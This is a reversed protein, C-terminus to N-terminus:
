RQRTKEGEVRERLRCMLARVLRGVEESQQEIAQTRGPKLYGLNVAVTLLTELEVLSGHAISLHHLFEGIGTRGHGEAINAPVSVAARRIQLRLGFEENRPFGDSLHYAETVLDVAKQWAILDRYSKIEPM